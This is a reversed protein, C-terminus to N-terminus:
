HALTRVSASPVQQRPHRRLLWRKVNNLRPLSTECGLHPVNKVTQRRRQENPRVQINRYLFRDNGRTKGLRYNEKLIVTFAAASAGRNHL